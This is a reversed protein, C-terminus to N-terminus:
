SYGLETMVQQVSKEDEPLQQAPDGRSPQIDTVEGIVEANGDDDDAVIVNDGFRVDFRQKIGDAEARKRACQHPEMRSKEGIRYIGVGIWVPAKGVMEIAEKYPIGASTLANLSKAYAQTTKTDRLKISYVVADQPAGYTSPDIREPPETWYITDEEISQLRAHKRLGKIGVMVGRWNGDNGKLGWVEGNFPDLKHAIAVQAVTLAESQTLKNAGPLMKQLRESLERIEDRPGFTSLATEM